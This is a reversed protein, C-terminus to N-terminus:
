TSLRDSGPAALGHDGTWGAGHEARGAVVDQGSRCGDVGDVPEFAVVLDRAAVAGVQQEASGAVVPDGAVGAVVVDVAAGTEVAREVGVRGAADGDVHGGAGHGAGADVAVREDVDLGDDAAVNASM